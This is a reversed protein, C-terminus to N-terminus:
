RATSSVMGNAYRVGKVHIPSSHTEIQLYLTTEGAKECYCPSAHERRNINVKGSASTLKGKVGQGKALGITVAAQQLQCLLHQPGLACTALRVEQQKKDTQSRISIDEFPLYDLRVDAQGVELDLVSMLTEPLSVVMQCPLYADFRLCEGELYLQPLPTDAPETWYTLNVQVHDKKHKLFQLKGETLRVHMASVQEFTFEQKLKTSSFVKFSPFTFGFRPKEEELIFLEEIALGLEQSCARAEEKTLAGKEYLELLRKEEELVM